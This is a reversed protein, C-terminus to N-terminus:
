LALPRDLAHLLEDDREYIDPRVILNLGPLSRCFIPPYARNQNARKTSGCAKM